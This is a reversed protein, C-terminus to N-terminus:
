SKAATTRKGRPKKRKTRELETIRRELAAIREVCQALDPGAPEHAASSTESKASASGSPTDYASQENATQDGAVSAFVAAGSNMLAMTRAMIEMTEGDEALANLHEQWLDLYKRALQDLDPTDSTEEM